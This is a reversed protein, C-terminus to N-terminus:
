KPIGFKDFLPLKGLVTIDTRNYSDGEALVAMKGVINAGAKTALEELAELSEGTSIVDDVIIVKKNKLFEADDQGLYLEQKHQTTISEVQVHIPNKMYVKMGKRAVIYNNYGKQRSMEMALPIGKAEATLIVDFDPAKKLLEKAAHETVEIDGFMIFAAIYTEESVPFLELERELGAIEMKYKM